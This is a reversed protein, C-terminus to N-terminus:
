KTTLKEVAHFLIVINLENEMNVCRTGTIEVRTILINHHVSCLKYKYSKGLTNLQKKLYNVENEKQSGRTNFSHFGREDENALFRLSVRRYNFARQPFFLFMGLYLM